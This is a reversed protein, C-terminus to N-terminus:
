DYLRRDYNISTSCEMRPSTSGGNYYDMWYQLIPHSQGNHTTTVTELVGYEIWVKTSQRPIAQAMYLVKIRQM